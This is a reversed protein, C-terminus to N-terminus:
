PVFLMRISNAHIEPIGDHKKKKKPGGFIRPVTESKEPYLFTGEPYTCIQAKDSVRTNRATKNTNPATKNANAAESSLQDQGLDVWWEGVAELRSVLGRPIESCELEVQYQQM